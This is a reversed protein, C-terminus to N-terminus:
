HEYEEDDDYEEFSDCYGSLLDEIDDGDEELHEGLCEQELEEEDM